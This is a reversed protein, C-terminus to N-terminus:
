ESPLPIIGKLKESTSFQMLPFSSVLFSLFGQWLGADIPFANIARQYLVKVLMFDPKTVEQEWALYSQFGEVSVSTGSIRDEQDERIDVIARTANYLPQSTVLSEEYAANKYTSIFSSYMQFTDSLQLHPQCLRELYFRDMEEIADPTSDRRLRFLRYSHLILWVSQGQQRLSCALLM